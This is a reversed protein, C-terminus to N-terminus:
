LERQKKSQWFEIFSFHQAPFLKPPQFNKVLLLKMKGLFIKLGM